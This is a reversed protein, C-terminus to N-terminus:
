GRPIVKITGKMGAAKHGPVTCYFIFRERTNLTMVAASFGEKVTETALSLGSPLSEIAVNHPTSQPNTFEMTVNGEKATVEDTTFALDGGPDAEFELPPSGYTASAPHKEAFTSESDTEPPPGLNSGEELTIPGTTTDSDGDGGGGCAVFAVALVAAVLLTVTPRLM